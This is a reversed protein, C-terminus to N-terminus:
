FNGKVGIYITAGNISYSRTYNPNVVDERYPENTVNRVDVFISHQKHFDYFVTTDLTGRDDWHCHSRCRDRRVGARSPGSQPRFRGRSRSRASTKAGLNRNL